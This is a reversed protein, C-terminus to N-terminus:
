EIDLYKFVTNLPLELVKAIEVPDMGHKQLKKVMEERGKEKGKELGKELGKAEWKATLGCEEMVEEFASSMSMLEKFTTRNAGVVMWLYASVPTGKGAERSKELIGRLEEGKLGARLDRLWIGGDEERLRKTEIVQVGFLDGTVYYIGPRKEEVGYGHKEEIHKMLKRPYRETVFSITMDTTQVRNLDCYLRAYAGAKLYDSISLYDGPSKYEIINVGRFIAGLPIDIVANPQKKIIVADIRLPETNLPYEFQFSLLHRYPFFTLRIGDRFATHWTIPGSLPSTESLGYHEM